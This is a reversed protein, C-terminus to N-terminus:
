KKKGRRLAAPLLLATLVPWVWGLDGPGGPGALAQERRLHLLRYDAALARLEQDDLKHPNIGFAYAAFGSGRLVARLLPLWRPDDQPLEVAEAQWRGEPLWVECQPNASLNRYWDSGSGFGATVYVEGDVQAFNVPTRRQLGTKRGTHTIVLFQGMGSPWLSLWPGMGLRWNLLMLRNLVKFSKRLTDLIQPDLSSM